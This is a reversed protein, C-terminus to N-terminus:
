ESKFMVFGYGKSVNTKKEKIVKIEKVKGFAEFYAKLEALHHSGQIKELFRGKTTNPSIGGVFM